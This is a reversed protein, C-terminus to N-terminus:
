KGKKKRVKKEKKRRKRRKKRSEERGGKRWSDNRSRAERKKRITKEGRLRHRCYPGKTTTITKSNSAVLRELCLCLVAGIGLSDTTHLPNSLSSPSEMRGSLDGAELSSLKRAEKRM